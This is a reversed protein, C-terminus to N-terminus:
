MNELVQILISLSGGSGILRRLEKLYQLDGDAQRKEPSCLGLGNKM